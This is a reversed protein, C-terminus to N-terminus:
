IESFVFFFVLLSVACAGQGFRSLTCVETQGVDMGDQQCEENTITKLRIYQLDNPPRGLRIMTVFGWGTLVCEVGGPVYEQNFKIPQIQFSFRFRDFFVKSTFNYNTM